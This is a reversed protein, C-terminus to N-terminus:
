TYIHQTARNKQSEQARQVCKQWPRSTTKSFDYVIDGFVSTHM